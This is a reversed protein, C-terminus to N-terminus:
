DEGIRRCREIQSCLANVQGRPLQNLVNLTEALVTAPVAYYIIDQPPEAPMPQPQGNPKTQAQQKESM